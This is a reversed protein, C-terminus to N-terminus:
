TPTASPVQPALMRATMEDRTPLGNANRGVLWWAGLAVPVAALAPGFEPSLLRLLIPGAIGLLCLARVRRLSAFSRHLLDIDDAREDRTSAAVIQRKGDREISILHIERSASM